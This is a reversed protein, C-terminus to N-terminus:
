SGTGTAPGGPFSDRVASEATGAAAPPATAGRRLSLALCLPGVTPLSRYGDRWLDYHILGAGALLVANLLRTPRGSM